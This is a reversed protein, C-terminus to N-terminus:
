YIPTKEMGQPDISKMAKKRVHIGSKLYHILKKITKEINKQQRRRIKIYGSLLQFLQFWKEGLNPRGYEKCLDWKVSWFTQRVPHLGMKQYLSFTQVWFSFSKEGFGEVYGDPTGAAHLV